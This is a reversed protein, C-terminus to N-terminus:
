VMVGQGQCEGCLHRNKEVGILVDYFGAGECIPCIHTYNQKTYLLTM